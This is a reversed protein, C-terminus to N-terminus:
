ILLLEYGSFVCKRTNKNLEVFQILLVKWWCLLGCKQFFLFNCRGLNADSQFMTDNKEEKVDAQKGWNKVEEDVNVCTKNM